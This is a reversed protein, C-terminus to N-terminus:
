DIGGDGSQALRDAEFSVPACVACGDASLTGALSKPRDGPGLTATINLHRYPECGPGQLGIAPSAASLTVTRGAITGTATVEPGSSTSLSIFKGSQSVSISSERAAAGEALCPLHVPQASGSRVRWLGDMSAPARLAHGYKLCAVLGAVPLGVFLLYGVIFRAGKTFSMM